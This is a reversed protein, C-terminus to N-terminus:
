RKKPKPAPLADATQRIFTSLWEADELKEGPVKLYNKAGPFPADVHSKDLFTDSVPSIKVFLTEDCVLAVVKEDCYIAYEGFMKRSRINRAGAMQDTIFDVTVQSTSM